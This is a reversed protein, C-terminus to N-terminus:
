RCYTSGSLRSPIDDNMAATSQASGWPKIEVSHLGVNNLYVKVWEDTNNRYSAHAFYGTRGGQFTVTVDVSGIVRGDKKVDFSATMPSPTTVQLNVPNSNTSQKLEIEDNAGFAFVSIILAFLTAFLTKKM